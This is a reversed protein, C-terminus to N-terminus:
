AAEHNETKQMIFTNECLPVLDDYLQIKEGILKSIEKKYTTETGDVITDITEKFVSFDDYYKSRLKGKVLKWLREILNLNPSYPPIYVLEIGLSAALEKVVDCKQYRANDLAIHITKGVYEAAVKKLMICIETATIYTDNTVSTVKKTIFNIAGLVNYRQRGSFTKVYRRAKGYIGGLFDSGMVFHSADLFLLVHNSRKEKAKDM